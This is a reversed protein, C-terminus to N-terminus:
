QHFATWWRQWFDFQISGRQDFSTHWIQSVFLVGDALYQCHKNSSINRSPLGRPVVQCSVTSWECPLELIPTAHFPHVEALHLQPWSVVSTHEWQLYIWCLWLSKPSHLQQIPVQEAV